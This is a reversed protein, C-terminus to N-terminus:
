SEDVFIKAICICRDSYCDKAVPYVVGNSLNSHLCRSFTLDTNIFYASKDVECMANLNCIYDRLNDNYYHELYKYICIVIILFNM